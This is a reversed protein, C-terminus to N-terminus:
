VIISEFVKFDVDFLMVSVHHRVVIILRLASVRRANLSSLRGRCTAAARQLLNEKKSGASFSGKDLERAADKRM